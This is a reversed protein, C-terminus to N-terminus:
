NGGMAEDHCQQSCFHWKEGVQRWGRMDDIYHNTLGWTNNAYEITHQEEIAETNGCNECYLSFEVEIM